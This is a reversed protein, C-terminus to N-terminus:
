REEGTAVLTAELGRAILEARSIGLKKALRDSKELLGREVSVSIVQAGKGKRPRGRRRAQELKKAAEPPAPGFTDAVFEEDFEATSRALEGATMDQYRKKKSM